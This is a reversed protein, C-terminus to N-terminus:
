RLLALFALLGNSCHFPARNLYKLGAPDCGLPIIPSSGRPTGNLKSGNNPWTAVPCLSFNNTKPSPVLLWQRVYCLVLREYVVRGSVTGSNSVVDVNDVKGLAMKSGQVVESFLFGTNSGPVQARSTAARDELHDVCEAFNDAV